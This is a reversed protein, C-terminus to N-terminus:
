GMYGTSAPSTPRDAKVRDTHTLTGDLTVNTLGDNKAQSEWRPSLRWRSSDGQGPSPNNSRATTSTSVKRPSFILATVAKRAASVSPSSSVLLRTV